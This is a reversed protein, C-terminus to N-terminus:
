IQLRQGKAIDELQKATGQKKRQTALNNLSLLVQRHQRNSKGIIM